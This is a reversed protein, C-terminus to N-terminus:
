KSRNSVSNVESTNRNMLIKIMQSLYTVNDYWNVWFELAKSQGQPAMKEKKEMGKNNNHNVLDMGAQFFEHPSRGLM